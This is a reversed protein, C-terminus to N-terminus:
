GQNLGEGVSLVLYEHRMEEDLISHINYNRGQYVVRHATTLNTRYRVTVEHTTERNIARALDLERGSLPKIKAMVTAFTSWDVAEQGFGDRTVSRSQLAVQRNLDGARLM